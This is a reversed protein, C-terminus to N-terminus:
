KQLARIRQLLTPHTYYMNVYFPHPTLNKLNKTSLKILASIMHETLLNQKVFDDAEFEQRRSIKRMIVNFAFLIPSYFLIFAIFSILFSPKDGGLTNSIEHINLFISFLFFFLGNNIINIIINKVLHRRKYHGAEHAVIALIEDISFETLLTDYLVIRRKNGIGAFYANAKTSRKSANLVYVNQLNLGINEFFNLIVRKLERDKLIVQKNFIPVLINSYFAILFLLICSTLIWTYVWFFDPSIEHFWLFSILIITGFIIKFLFARVKDFIFLKPTTKNFGFKEEVFFTKYVDIPINIIEFGLLIIVFYIIKSITGSVLNNTLNDFFAFGNSLIMIVLVLLYITRSLTLLNHNTRDYEIAKKYEKIDIKQNLEKPLIGTRYKSNLHEIYIEFFYKSVLIICIIITYM